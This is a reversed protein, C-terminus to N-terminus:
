LRPGFRTIAGHHVSFAHSQLPIEEDDREEEAQAGIVGADLLEGEIPIDPLGRSLDNITPARPLDHQSLGTTMSGSAPPVENM